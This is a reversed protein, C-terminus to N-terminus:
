LLQPNPIPTVEKKPLPLRIAKVGKAGAVAEAQINEYSMELEEEYSPGIGRGRNHYRRMQGPTMYQKSIRLLIARMHNFQQRQKETISMKKSM